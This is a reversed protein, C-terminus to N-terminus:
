VCRSTYLLCDLQLSSVGFDALLGDLTGPRIVEAIESFSRSVFEMAPMETGLEEAVGALRVKALPMAHEDRDFGILRGKGGLRKAIEASHGALGLTADVVVGGPPVQLYELSEELLVPVHLPAAM